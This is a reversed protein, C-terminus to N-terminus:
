RLSKLSPEIVPKKIRMKPYKRLYQEATIHGLHKATFWDQCAGHIDHQEMKILGRMFYSASCHNNVHQLYQNIDAIAGDFDKLMLRGESRNHHAISISPNLSIALDNDDIALKYNATEFYAIARMTLANFHYKNLDLVRAYLSIAQHYDKDNLKLQADIFLNKIQNDIEQSTQKSKAMVPSPLISESVNWRVLDRNLKISKEAGRSGTIYYQQALRDEFHRVFAEKIRSCKENISNKTPDVLEDISRIVEDWTERYSLQKYINLLEDRHDYLHKLMIGEPHRLFLLFVAKPLPTLEIELNNYDPLIIRFDPEIVLRSLGNNTSVGAPFVGNLNKGLIDLLLHRGGSSQLKEINSRIEQALQHADYDFKFDALEHLEGNEIYQRETALQYFVQEDRDGVHSFYFYLEKELAAPDTASIKFYSYQLDNTAQDRNKRLRLFGPFVQGTYNLSNLLIRTFDRTQFSAVDSQLSSFMENVAGPFYYKLVADSDKSNKIDAIISPLYIPDVDVNCLQHVESLIEQLKNYHNTFYDNVVPNYDGELYIVQNPKLNFPNYPHNITISTPSELDAYKNRIEIPPYIKNQNVPKHSDAPKSTKKDRRNIWYVILFSVAIIGILSSLIILWLYLPM